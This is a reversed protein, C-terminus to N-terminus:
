GDENLVHIYLCVLLGLPWKELGKSVGSATALLEKIVGAHGSLICETVGRERLSTGWDMVLSALAAVVLVTSSTEKRERKGRKHDM